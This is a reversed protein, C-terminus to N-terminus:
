LANRTSAESTRGGMCWLRTAQDVWWSSMRIHKWCLLEALAQDVEDDTVEGRVRVIREVEVGREGMKVIVDRMRGFQSGGVLVDMRKEKVWARQEMQGKLNFRYNGRYRGLRVASRCFEGVVKTFAFEGEVSIGKSFDGREKEGEEDDTERGKGGTKEDRMREIERATGVKNFVVEKREDGMVTLVNGRLALVNVGSKRGHQFVFTPKWFSPVADVDTVYERGGTECLKAVEERGSKESIWKIWEQVGGILGKGIEDIGEFVVPVFPLVEIGIDGTVSFVERVMNNFSEMYGELGERRLHVFSGVLIKSGAPLFFEHERKGRQRDFAKKDLNIKRLMGAVEDLGMHEKKLVWACTNEANGKETYGVVTPTAEDGVVLIVPDNSRSKHTVKGNEDRCSLCGSKTFSAVWNRSEQKGDKGGPFLPEKRVGFNNNPRGSHNMQKVREDQGLRFTEPLPIKETRVNRVKRGDKEVSVFVTERKWRKEERGERERWDWGATGCMGGVLRDKSDHRKRKRDGKRVEELEEDERDEPIEDLFGFGAKTKRSEGSDMSCSDEEVPVEEELQIVGGFGNEMWEGEIEESAGDKKGGTCNDEVVLESGERKLGRGQLRTRIKAWGERAAATIREKIRVSSAKFSAGEVVEMAEVGRRTKEM